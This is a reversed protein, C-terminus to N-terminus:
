KRRERSMGKPIERSIGKPLMRSLTAESVGLTAALHKQQYGMALLQLMILKKIVGMEQILSGAEAEAM